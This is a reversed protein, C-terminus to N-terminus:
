IHNMLCDTDTNLWNSESNASKLPMSQNELEAQNKLEEKIGLLLEKNANLKLNSSSNNNVGDSKLPFIEWLVSSESAPLSLVDWLM